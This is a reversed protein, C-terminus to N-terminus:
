ADDAALWRRLDQRSRSNWSKVTGVSAFFQRAIDELPVGDVALLLAIREREPLRALARALRDSLAHLEALEVVDDPPDHDEISSVVEARDRRHTQMWRLAANRAVTHMWTTFRADGRFGPLGKWIALIAEQIVGDLSGADIGDIACAAVIRVHVRSVLVGFAARDGGAAAAVLRDLGADDSGSGGRM